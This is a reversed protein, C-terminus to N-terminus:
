RTYSGAVGDNANDAEIYFDCANLSATVNGASFAAIINQTPVGLIGVIGVGSVKNPNPRDCIYVLGVNGTQDPTKPIAQAMVSNCVIARTPDAQNSTFRIANGSWPSTVKIYGLSHVAM